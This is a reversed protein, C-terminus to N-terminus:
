RSPPLRSSKLWLPGIMPRREPKSGVLPYGIGLGGSWRSCHWMCCHCLRHCDSRAFWAAGPGRYRQIVQHVIESTEACPTEEVVSSDSGSFASLVGGCLLGPRVCENSCDAKRQETLRGRRAVIDFSCWSVLVLFGVPWSADIFRV